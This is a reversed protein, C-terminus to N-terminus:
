RADGNLIRYVSTRGIGLERAIATMGLGQVNLARV